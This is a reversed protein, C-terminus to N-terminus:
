EWLGREKGRGKGPSIGYLVIEMVKNTYGPLAEM